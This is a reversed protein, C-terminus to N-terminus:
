SLYRRNLIKVQSEEGLAYCLNLNMRITQEVEEKMNKKINVIIEWIFKLNDENNEKENLNYGIEPLIRIFDEWINSELKM